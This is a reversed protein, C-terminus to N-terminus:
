ASMTRSSMARPTVTKAKLWRLTSSIRSIIRVSARITPTGSTFAFRKYLLVARSQGIDGSGRLEERSARAHEEFFPFFREDAADPPYLFQDLDGASIGDEGFQSILLSGFAADDVRGGNDRM